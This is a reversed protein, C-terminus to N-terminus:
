IKNQIFFNSSMIIAIKYVLVGPSGVTLHFHWYGEISGHGKENWPRNKKKKEM